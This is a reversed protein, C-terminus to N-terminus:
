DKRLAFINGETDSVEAVFVAPAVEATPTVVKGGCRQVSACAEDMDTVAFHLGVRGGSHQPNSFLGVRVGAIQLSSWRSSTWATVAGLSTAYFNTARDMDVVNLSFFTETVEFDSGRSENPM